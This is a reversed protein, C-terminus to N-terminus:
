ALQPGRIWLVTGRVRLGALYSGPTKGSHFAPERWDKIRNICHEAMNRQKHLDQMALLVRIHREALRCVKM